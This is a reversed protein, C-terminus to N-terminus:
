HDFSVKYVHFGVPTELPVVALFPVPGNVFAPPEDVDEVEIHLTQIRPLCFDWKKYVHFGVPTELPVVALFPVPGNVFAPPEDVDEIEIHLTQIRTEELLIARKQPPPHGFQHKRLGLYVTESQNQVLIGYHGRRDLATNVTM